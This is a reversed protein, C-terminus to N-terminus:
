KRPATLLRDAMWGVQGTPEVLLMVLGAQSSDLMTGKTLVVLITALTSPGATLNL